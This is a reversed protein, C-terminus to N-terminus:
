KMLMDAFTKGPWGPSQIIWGGDGDLLYDREVDFQTKATNGQLYERLLGEPVIHGILYRSEPGETLKVSSGFLLTRGKARRSFNEKVAKFTYACAPDTFLAEHGPVLNLMFTYRNDFRLISVHDAAEI